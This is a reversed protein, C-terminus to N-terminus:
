KLVTIMQKISKEVGNEKYKIVCIYNGIAMKSYDIGTQTPGAPQTYNAFRQKSMFPVGWRDLITVENEPFSDLGEIVLVDNVQDNDPTILKHVIVTIKDSKALALTKAKASVPSISTYFGTGIAAGLTGQVSTNNMELITADGTGDFFATTGNSSLSVSTRGTLGSTSGTTLEWFHDTFIEKVSGTVPVFGPDVTIVEMGLATTVDPADLADLRAPFYGTANGIGKVLLRGNIYSNDNGTQDLDAAGEYTLSGINTVKNVIIKGNTLTLSNTVTWNGILQFTAPTNSASNVILDRLGLASTTILQLQPNAPATPAALVLNLDSFNTASSRNDISSNTLLTTGPTTVFSTGSSIVMQAWSLAPSAMAIV